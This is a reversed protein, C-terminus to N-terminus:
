LFCLLGTVEKRHGRYTELEKFTRVDYLKITQDRSATLVWNGNSNWKVSLVTNKHGHLTCLERGTKADWLKVLNDKAGSVLLSKQPHWDVSKVDWGHGALSREEQCRAFDWVKVTTDDSCSCFKLDTSSFSLDRVAEKHATKNAKVNNM